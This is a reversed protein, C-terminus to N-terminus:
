FLDKLARILDGRFDQKMSLHLQSEDVCDMHDVWLGYVDM